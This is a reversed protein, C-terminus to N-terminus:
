TNLCIDIPILPVGHKPSALSWIVHFPPEGPGKEATALKAPDTTFDIGVRRPYEEWRFGRFVGNEEQVLLFTKYLEEWIRPWTGNDAKMHEIM